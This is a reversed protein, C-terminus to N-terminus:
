SLVRWGVFMAFLAFAILVALIVAAEMLAGHHCSRGAGLGSGRYHGVTMLIIADAPKV